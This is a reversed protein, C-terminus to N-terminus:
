FQEALNVMGGVPIALPKGSEEAIRFKDGIEAFDPQNTLRVVEWNISYEYNDTVDILQKAKLSIIANGIGERHVGTAKQFQSYSIRDTEKHFGITKRIIHLIIKLEAATLYPLLNFLCNPIQTYNDM